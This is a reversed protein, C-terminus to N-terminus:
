NTPLPVHADTIYHTEWVRGNTSEGQNTLRTLQNM